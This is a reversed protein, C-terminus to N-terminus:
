PSPSDDAPGDQVDEHMSAIHAELEAIRAQSAEDRQRWFDREVEAAVCRKEAEAVLLGMRETYRQDMVEMLTQQGM